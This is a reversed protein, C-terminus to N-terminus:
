CVLCMEFLEEKFRIWINMKSPLHTKCESDNFNNASMQGGRNYLRM